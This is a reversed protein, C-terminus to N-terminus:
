CFTAFKEGFQDPERPVLSQWSPADRPAEGAISSVSSRAAVFLTQRHPGSRLEGLCFVLAESAKRRRATKGCVTGFDLSHVLAPDPCRTPRRSIHPHLFHAESRTDVALSAPRPADDRGAVFDDLEAGAERLAQGRSLRQASRRHRRTTTRLHCSGPQAARAPWITTGPHKKGHIARVRHVRRTDECVVAAGAARPCAAEVVPPSSM